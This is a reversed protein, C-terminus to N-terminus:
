PQVNSSRIRNYITKRTVKLAKAATEQNGCRDVVWLIYNNVLTRIPVIDSVTYPQSLSTNQEDM